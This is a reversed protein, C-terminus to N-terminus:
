HQSPPRVAWAPLYKRRFGMLYDALPTGECRADLFATFDELYVLRVRERGADTLAQKVADSAQQRVKSNAWPFLFVVYSDRNLHVLNRLIQYHALFFAEERCSTSLFGSARNVLHSYMEQFKRTHEADSNAKGFGDESYKVEFFINNARPWGLHFDFNTRREAQEIESQKEFTAVLPTPAEIGLFATVLNLQDEEMLPYFLNLCLAQSSNLHHFYQHYKIRSYGRAFFPVNRYPLINLEGRRQGDSVPLIHAKEVWRGRYLFLGPAQVGLADTKYKALHQCISRCFNM